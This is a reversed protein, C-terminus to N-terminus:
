FLSWGLMGVVLGVMGMGVGAGRMAASDGGLPSDGETNGPRGQETWQDYAAYAMMIFSQAEASEPGQVGFDYPNVVQTVYGTSNV